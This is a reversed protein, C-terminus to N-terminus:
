QGKGKQINYCVKLVLKEPMITQFFRAVKMIFGPVIILKRKFMKKIAYEAVYKSTLSKVSFKVNAVDNFETVFDGYIKRKSRKSWVM